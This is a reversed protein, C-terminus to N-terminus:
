EIKEMSLFFSKWHEMLMNDNLRMRINRVNENIKELLHFGNRKSKISHTVFTSIFRKEMM